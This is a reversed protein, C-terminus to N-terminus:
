RKGVRHQQAGQERAKTRDDDLARACRLAALALLQHQAHQNIKTQEDINGDADAWRAAITELAMRLIDVQAGSREERDVSRHQEAAVVGTRKVEKLCDRYPYPTDGPEYRALTEAAKRGVRKRTVLAM